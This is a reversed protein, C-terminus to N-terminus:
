SNRLAKSTVERVFETKAQSYRERDHHFDVALERKLAAYQEREEAHSRLRDRFALGDWVRHGKPAIHIHHTRQGMLRDRKVFAMHGSHWWYDWTEDDFCPIIQPKAATFSPIEVLIDVVPKAPIGPIATSGYHEIRLAIDTGLQDNLWDAMDTFQQSWSPDHDLLDIEDSSPDNASLSVYSNASIWFNHPDPSSPHDAITPLPGSFEGTYRGSGSTAPAIWQWTIKDQSIITAREERTERVTRTNDELSWSVMGEPIEEIRGVEIGLFHLYGNEGIPSQFGVYRTLDGTHKVEKTLRDFLGGYFSMMSEFDGETLIQQGGVLQINPTQM